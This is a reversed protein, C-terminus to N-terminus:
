WPRREVAGAASAPDGGERYLSPHMLLVLGTLLLMGIVTALIITTKREAM